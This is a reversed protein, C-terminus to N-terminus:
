INELFLISYSISDLQIVFAATVILMLDIIIRAPAPAPAIKSVRAFRLIRLYIPELFAINSLVLM